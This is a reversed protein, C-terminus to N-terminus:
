YSIQFQVLCWAILNNSPSQISKILSCLENRTGGKSPGEGSAIPQKIRSKLDLLCGSSSEKDMQRFALLPNYSYLLAM